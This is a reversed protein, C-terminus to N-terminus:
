GTVVISTPLPWEVCDDKSGDEWVLMAFQAPEDLVVLPHHWVGAHYNIGQGPRGIFAKLGDLQPAGDAGSPAVCVLYRSCIMPVFTQSSCPHRELLKLRFPLTVPVCRVAVLNARAHPRANHLQSTYDFRLATGQNATSGGPLAASVVEGFPAFAEATLPAATLEM